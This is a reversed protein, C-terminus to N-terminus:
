HEPMYYNDTQAIQSLVRVSITSIEVKDRFCLFLLSILCYQQIQHRAVVIRLHLDRQIQRVTEPM